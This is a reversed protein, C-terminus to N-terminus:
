RRRPDTLRAGQHPWKLGDRHPWISNVNGRQRYCAAVGCPGNPPLAVVAPRGSVALDRVKVRRRGNGTARVGCVPCAAVTAPTEVELWVEGDSEVAALVVLGDLGLLATAGRSGDVDV